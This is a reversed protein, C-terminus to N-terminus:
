AKGPLYHTQSEGFKLTAGSALVAMFFGYFMVGQNKSLVDETLMGFVLVTIIVLGLMDRKKIVSAYVPILILLYIALGAMGFMVLVELFQNHTRFNRHLALKFDVKEYEVMLDRLHDGTGSGFWPREKIAAAARNWLALRTNLGNWKDRSDNDGFHSIEAPASFEYDMRGNILETYRNLTRPFLLLLLVVAVGGAALAIFARRWVVRGKSQLLVLVFGGLYLMAMSMRSAMMFNLFVCSFLGFVLLWTKRKERPGVMIENVLILFAVCVYMGYYVAQLRYLSVLNDNYLWGTDPDVQFVYILQKFFGAYGAAVTIWAFLLFVPRLERSSLPKPLLFLPFLLLPIRLVLLKMGRDEDDSYFMGAIHLLFFLIFGWLAPSRLSMPISNIFGQRFLMLALFCVFTATKLWPVPIFFGLFLLAFGILQYDFNHRLSRFM